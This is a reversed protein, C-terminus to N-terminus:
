SASLDGNTCHVTCSTLSSNWNDPKVIQNWQEVTGGFHIDTLATCDAFVSLEFEVVSGPITVSELAYCRLFLFQKLTTLSEPLTVQVKRDHKNHQYPLDIFMSPPMLRRNNNM